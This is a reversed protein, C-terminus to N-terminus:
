LRVHFLVSFDQNKENIVTIPTKISQYSYLYLSRPVWYPILKKHQKYRDSLVEKLILRWDVMVFKKTTIILLSFKCLIM